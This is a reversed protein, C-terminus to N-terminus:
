VRERSNELAVRQSQTWPLDLRPLGRSEPLDPMLVRVWSTRSAASRRSARILRESTTVATMAVPTIVSTIEEFAAVASPVVEVALVLTAASVVVVPLEVLADAFCALVESLAAAAGVLAM